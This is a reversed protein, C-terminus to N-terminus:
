ASMRGRQGVAIKEMARRYQEAQVISKPKVGRPVGPIQYNEPYSYSQAIKNLGFREQIYVEKRITECRTCVLTRAIELQKRRSHDPPVVHFDNEVTWAHMFDRCAIWNEPLETLASALRSAAARDSEYKRKVVRKDTVDDTVQKKRAPM